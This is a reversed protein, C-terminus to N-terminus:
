YVFSLTKLEHTIKNYRDDLDDLKNLRGNAKSPKVMRGKKPKHALKEERKKLKSANQNGKVSAPRSSNKKFGQPM